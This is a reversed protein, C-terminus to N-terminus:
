LSKPSPSDYFDYNIVEATNFLQRYKYVDFQLRLTPEGFSFISRMMILDYGHATVNRKVLIPVLNEKALSQFQGSIPEPQGDEYSFSALNNEVWEMYGEYDTAETLIYYEIEINDPFEMSGDFQYDGSFKAAFLLKNNWLSVDNAPEYPEGFKV